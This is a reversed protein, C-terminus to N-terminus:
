KLQKVSTTRVLFYKGNNEFLTFDLKKAVENGLVMRAPVDLSKNANVWITAPETTIIPISGLGSLSWKHGDYQLGMRLFEYRIQQKQSESAFSDLMGNVLTKRVGGLRLESFANSVQEYDDKGEIKKLLSVASNFNGGSAAEHLKEALQEHTTSDGGGVIVNFASESITAPMGAKSLAKATESGFDGDAGFKPLISAGYKEILAEQLQKVKDGKSGKKLPFGSGTNVTRKKKTATTDAGTKVSHYNSDTSPFSNKTIVTDTYPTNPKYPQLSNAGAGKNIAGKKHYYEWGFYGIVGAASIALTTLLLNNGTNQPAPKYPPTRVKGTKTKVTKKKM